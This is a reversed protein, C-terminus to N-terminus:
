GRGELVSIARKLGERMGVYFMSETGARVKGASEQADEALVNLRAINAEINRAYPERAKAAIEDRDQQSNGRVTFGAERLFQDIEAVAEETLGQETHAVNIGAWACIANEAMLIWDPDGSQEARVLESALLIHKESPRAM